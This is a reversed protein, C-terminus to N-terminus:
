LPGSGWYTNTCEAIDSSESKALAARDVLLFSPFYQKDNLETKKKPVIKDTEQNTEQDLSYTFFKM